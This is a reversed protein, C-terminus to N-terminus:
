VHFYKLILSLGQFFDYNYIYSSIGTTALIVATDLVRVAYRYKSYLIYMYMTSRPPSIYYETFYLIYVYTKM